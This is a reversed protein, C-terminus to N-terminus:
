NAPVSYLGSTDTVMTHLLSPLMKPAFLAVHGNWCPKEVLGVRFCAATSRAKACVCM